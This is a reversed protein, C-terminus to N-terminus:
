KCRSEEFIELVEYKILDWFFHFLKTTFGDLSPAKGQAMQSVTEEVEQMSIPQNIMENDERTIVKPILVTVRVIDQSKDGRDETM